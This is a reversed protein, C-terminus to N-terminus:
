CRCCSKRAVCVYYSTCAMMMPCLILLSYQGAQLSAEAAHATSVGDCAYGEGQLAMVLGQLLLADDEVVLIKM